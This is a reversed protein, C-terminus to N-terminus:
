PRDSMRFMAATMNVHVTGPSRPPQAEAHVLVAAKEVLEM